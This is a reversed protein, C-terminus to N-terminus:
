TSFMDYLVSAKTASCYDRPCNKNHNQEFVHIPAFDLKFSFLIWKGLQVTATVTSTFCKTICELLSLFVFLLFDGDEIPFSCRSLIRQIPENERPIPENEMDM